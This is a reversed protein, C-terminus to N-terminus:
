QQIAIRLGKNTPIIVYIWRPRDGDMAGFELSRLLITLADLM